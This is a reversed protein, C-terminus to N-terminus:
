CVSVYVVCAAIFSVVYPNLKHIMEMYKLNWSISAIHFSHPHNRFLPSYCAPSPILPNTAKVGQSLGRPRLHALAQRASPQADQGDLGV